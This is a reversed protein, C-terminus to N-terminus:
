LKHSIKLNIKRNPQNKNKAVICPIKVEMLNELQNQKRTHFSNLTVYQIIKTCKHRESWYNYVICSFFAELTWECDIYSSEKEM